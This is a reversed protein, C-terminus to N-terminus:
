DNIYLLMETLEMTTFSLHLVVQKGNADFSYTLTASADAGYEAIGYTTTDPDGYLIETLDLYQGEGYRFRNLVSSFTDGMRVCRPGEMDGANISLSDVRPNQKSADYIFTVDCGAFEMMRIFEDNDDEMWHDELCDGLVDQAEDPTMSLFDVGSFAMDQAGLATLDTGTYSVPVRTYGTEGIVQRVASLNSEVDKLTSYEDLGYARIASVLDGQITYILGADTYGEGGTARQEHIAYQISMVRQGDRQVWAWVADQPLSDGMYLVAFSRSGDLTPNENYFAALVDDTFMDVATDRPGKEAPDTIVLNKLVSDETMESRDMYLTAFEYIFAYGDESLADEATPDNLPQASMAREKYAAAWERLEKMELSGAANDEALAPLVPLLILALMLCFLRKMLCFEKMNLNM